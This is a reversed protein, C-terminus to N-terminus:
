NVIGSTGIVLDAEWDGIRHKKDVIKPRQDIDVRNPINSRKKKKSGRKAYKKVSHRLNKYLKGGNQKDRWIFRYIAEHSMSLGPHDVKLRGSIQEPSWYLALKALVYTMIIPNWNFCRGTKRRKQLYNKQSCSASYVSRKSTICRKLERYITSRHVGVEAAIQAISLRRKNLASIQYRQAQTLHTYGKPM